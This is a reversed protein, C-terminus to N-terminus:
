PTFHSVLTKVINEPKYKLAEKLCNERLISLSTPNNVIDILQLTLAKVSHVPFIFGTYGHKVINANDHWDSAIVPLGAAFADLFTGAFCEGDYFTPFLLANYQCLIKNTEQYGVAGQYRVFDPFTKKLSEFWQEEGSEIQGYIDLTVSVRNTKKNCAIVAEVAEEIGKERMVRSFTCASLPTRTDDPLSKINAIDLPKTNPMITINQFGQEELAIKMSLSEPFIRNLRRLIWRLMVNRRTHEPLWGGIVVYFLRRHFLLTAVVLVLPIIRVGNHAPLMIINKSICLWYFASFPLRLLFRWGDATDIRRVNEKGYINELQDAIIKTKITQGNLVVRGQAFHGIISVSKM